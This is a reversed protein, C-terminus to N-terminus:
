PYPARELEPPGPCDMNEDLEKDTPRCFSPLGELFRQIELVNQYTKLSRSIRLVVSTFKRNEARRIRLLGGKAGKETRHNNLGKPYTRCEQSM